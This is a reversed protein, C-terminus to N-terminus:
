RQRAASHAEAMAAAVRRPGKFPTRGHATLMNDLMLVDQARWRFTVTAADLVARIEDLVSAEIAGGDGYYVHRPWQSEDVADLLAERVEPELNSVHFLHAQNFWVMEGTKPHRAVAQCVQRTRLQEAGLWECAIGQARCYAEVVARDSTGFVEEWPLDLGGGFNRVYMLRRESFRGRISPAMRRYIERSDAIPTEGGETAAVACYFWLKMPWNVTYSQENHLPIHQHPPYETSTFVGKGLTSRPTSAFDYDLLPHGFGTAFARFEDLGAIRFSRLLIAGCGLLLDELYTFRGRLSDMLAGGDVEPTVVLPFGGLAHADVRVARHARMTDPSSTM